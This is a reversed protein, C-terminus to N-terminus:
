FAIILNVLKTATSTACLEESTRFEINVANVCATNRVELGALHTVECITPIKSCYPYTYIKLNVHVHAVHHPAHVPDRLVEPRARAEGDGAGAVLLHTVRGVCHLLSALAVEEVSESTLVKM